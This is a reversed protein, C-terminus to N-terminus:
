RNAFSWTTFYIVQVPNKMSTINSRETAEVTSQPELAKDLAQSVPETLDYRSLRGPSPVPPIKYPMAIINEGDTQQGSLSTVPTGDHVLNAEEPITPLQSSEGRPPQDTL